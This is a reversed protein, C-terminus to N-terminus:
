SSHEISETNTKWKNSPSKIYILLTLLMILINYIICAVAITHLIDMSLQSIISKSHISQSLSLHIRNISSQRANCMWRNGHTAQTITDLNWTDLFTVVPVNGYNQGLTYWSEGIVCVYLQIGDRQLYPIFSEIAYWTNTNGDGILLITKKQTKYSRLADWAFWIANGPASWMYADNVHYSGL